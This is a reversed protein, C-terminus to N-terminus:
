QELSASPITMTLKLGSRQWDYDIKGGLQGISRQTLVTGFGGKKPSAVIAPGGAEEWELHLRDGDAYWEIRITGNPESLAGYKAANTASEHLALAISTVAEAGVPL